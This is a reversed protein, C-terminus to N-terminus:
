IDKDNDDYAHLFFFIRFDRNYLCNVSNLLARLEQKNLYFIERQKIERAAANSTWLLKADAKLARTKNNFSLFILGWGALNGGDYSVHVM